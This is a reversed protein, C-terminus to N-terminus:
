KKSPMKATKDFVGYLQWFALIGFLNDAVTTMPSVAPTGINPNPMKANQCKPLAAAM